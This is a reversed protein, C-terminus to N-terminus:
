TGEGNSQNAIVTSVGKAADGVSALVEFPNLAKSICVAEKLHNTLRSLYANQEPIVTDRGQLSKFCVDFPEIFIKM